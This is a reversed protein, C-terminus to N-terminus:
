FFCCLMVLLGGMMVGLSCVVVILRRFMMFGAVMLFCSVVCVNRVGVMEVGNVVILICSLLM